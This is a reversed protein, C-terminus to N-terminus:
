QKIIKRMDGIMYLSGSILIIDDKDAYLLAKKYADNYSLIAESNKNYKSVIENLKLFDEGRDSNPTVCIVRKAIPAIIEVMKYVQKDELIGLILIINKYKFYTEINEKLTNTGEINHAGDIITLPKRKLVELRGIWKVHSLAEISKEMDVHFGSEKIQLLSAIASACNLMQHKGLLSLRINYIKDRLCIKINQVYRDSNRDLKNKDLLKVSDRKIKIIPSHFTNCIDEIVKEAEHKQPYLVVPVKDKVIGAKEYAIKGLTDGLINMHDLSISMIVSLIVGGGYEPSFPEMVNTADLRGGLGVEIVAFDVKMMHFYYFMACTEIEFETPNEYGLEIVREVAKSVETVSLALDDRSIKEGNIQIREEFVELHPSTYLGVKYGNEKLMEAIMAATSGKGNTGAIHISKIKRQPNGLIELIKQVRELGLNIGFKATSEIYNLAEEYNM